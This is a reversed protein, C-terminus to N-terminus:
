YIFLTLIYNFVLCISPPRFSNWFSFLSYILFRSILFLLVYLPWNKASSNPTVLCTITFSMAIVLASPMFM